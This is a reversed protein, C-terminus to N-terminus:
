NTQPGDSIGIPTGCEPCREATARLDYGCHVCLRQAARDKRRIVRLRDGAEFAAWVSALTILLWSSPIVLESAHAYVASPAGSAINDVDWQHLRIGAFSFVDPKPVCQPIVYPPASVRAEQYFYLKGDTLHIQFPPSKAGLAGSGISLGFIGSLLVTAACILPIYITLRPISKKV